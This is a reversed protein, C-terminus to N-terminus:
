KNINLSCAIHTLDYFSSAHQRKDDAECNRYSFMSFIPNYPMAKRKPVAFNKNAAEIILVVDREGKSIATEVPKPAIM